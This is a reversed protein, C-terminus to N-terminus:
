GGLLAQKLNPQEPKDGLWIRLVARYFPEGPLPRGKPIGNV